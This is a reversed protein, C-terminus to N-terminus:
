MKPHSYVTIFSSVIYIRNADDFPCGAILERLYRGENIHLPESVTCKLGTSYSKTCKYYCDVIYFFFVQTKPSPSEKQQDRIPKCQHAQCRRSRAHPKWVSRSSWWMLCHKIRKCPFLILKARWQHFYRQSDPKPHVLINSKQPLASIVAQPNHVIHILPQHSSLKLAYFLYLGWVIMTASIVTTM